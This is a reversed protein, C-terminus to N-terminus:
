KTFWQPYKKKVEGHTLTEGRDAQKMAIEVDAKVKGPLTDWRDADADVELLAHVMKVTKEDATDIYKKVNKRMQQLADM